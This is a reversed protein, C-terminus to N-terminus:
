VKMLLNSIDNYGLSLTPTNNWGGKKLYVAIKVRHTNPVPTGGAYYSKIKLLGNNQNMSIDIIDGSSNYMSQICAEFRVQNLSLANVGVYSCDAFRMANYGSVTLGNGYNAVFNNFIDISYGDIYGDKLLIVVESIEIDQKFLSGDKNIIQGRDIILNDPVYFDNKGPSFNLIEFVDSCLSQSEDICTGDPNKFVPTADTSTFTRAVYRTNSNVLLLWPQWFPQPAIKYPIPAFPISNFIPDIVDMQPSSLYGDYSMQAETLSSALVLNQDSYGDLRVYGDICDFYGDDRGTNQQVILNMHNFNAGASFVKSVNHIYNSIADVDASTVSGDGNVDARLFELISFDGHAIKTQTSNLSLSEGVLTSALILDNTDIIGDGNVDGYYDTCLKVDYIKYGIGECTDNPILKSGILQQALLNANPNIVTYVDGKVLGPYQQTATVTNNSRPNSDMACGIILPSETKELEQLGTSNVFSFSPKFQQRSYVPSGTIEDQVITTPTNVAELIGINLTDQGSFALPNLGFVNDINAGLTNVTSKPIMVGNGADYAQGDSIKVADTWVQYWLEQEPVDTWGSSFISLMGNTGNVNSGAGLLLSGTSADGTRSIGIMYFQNPFIVSNITDGLSSSSFVFDIPQLIDTLIYGISLLSLQTFSFQVIPQPSPDYEIPLGPVITGPSSVSTQLAYVSVIMNGSWDYENGIPVSDNASAGMLLTIKQINNTCAVFKQSVISTVDGTSLSLTRLPTTAIGLSDVTYGSGMGNQLQQYLGVSVNPASHNVFKFDRFFLNPTQEQSIMIPDRSIEMSLSEKIVIRGGLSRSCASNGKFDNFFICLVKAYHKKSVQTEKRSFYFTEYQASNQFDVGIILVKVSYRGMANAILYDYGDISDSYTIQLQNGLVTDSPQSTPSIGTGDFSDAALLGLQTQNLVDSDFVVVPNLASPLVGSGFGNDVTCADTLINRSQESTMDSQDVRQGDYFRPQIQSISIAM